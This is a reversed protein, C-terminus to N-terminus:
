ARMCDASRELQDSVIDCYQRIHLSADRVGSAGKWQRAAAHKGHNPQQGDEAKCTAM